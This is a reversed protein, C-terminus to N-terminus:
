VHARGIEDAARAKAEQQLQAIQRELQLISQREAFVLAGLALIIISGIIFRPDKM